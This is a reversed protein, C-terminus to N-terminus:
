GRWPSCVPEQGAEEGAETGIVGPNQPPPRVGCSRQKKLDLRIDHSNGESHTFGDAEIFGLTRGQLYFEATRGEWVTITGPGLAAVHGPSWSTEAM